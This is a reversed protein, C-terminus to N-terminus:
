ETYVGYLKFLQATVAFITGGLIPRASWKQGVFNPGGSLKQGDLGTRTPGIKNTLFPGVWVYTTRGPGGKRQLFLRVSVMKTM